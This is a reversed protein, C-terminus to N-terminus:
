RSSYTRKLILCNSECDFVRVAEVLLHQDKLSVWLMIVKGESLDKRLKDVVNEMADPTEDPSDVSIVHRGSTAIEEAEMPDANPGINVVFVNVGRERLPKVAEAPPVDGSSKGHTLIILVKSAGPRGGAAVDFLKNSAVRLAEDTVRASGTSPQLAALIDKIRGITNDNNLRSVIRVSSSFELIGVHADKESIKYRKLMNLIAEKLKSFQTSTLPRSGDLAFM